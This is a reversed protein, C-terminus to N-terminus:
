APGTLRRVRARYRAATAPDGQDVAVRTLGQLAALSWPNRQLAHAFAVKAAAPQAAVILAGGWDNWPGPDAQDQHAATAWWRLADVGAGGHGTIAAFADLRAVQAAPESWSPLLTAATRAAAPDDALDARRLDVLGTTLVATTTVAAAGLIGAAVRGARRRQSADADLAPPETSGAAAAAGLALFAVPTVGVYLPEVLMLALTFAAFGALPAADAGRRRAAAFATALWGLLLALGPIGTTVAYEVVLNHADGFIRDPGEDRAVALTRRSSTAVLFGSPGWGLLPRQGIAPLGSRWTDLRPRVGSAPAQGAREVTTTGGLGVAGVATGLLLGAAVLAAAVLGPRWGLRVVAAAAAVLALGLGFRSGSLAVAGALAVVSAAGSLRLRAGRCLALWLGGGLLEALYVPNGLLGPARGGYLGLGLASLDLLQQLFAVAANVLCAALIAREILVAASPRCAAGLMWAGVLAAVFLLGTGLSYRGWLAITRNPAALTALLAWGLFATALWAPRRRHGGLVRPLVVLGGAAVLPLVVYRPAWSSLTFSTVFLV